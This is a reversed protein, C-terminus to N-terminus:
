SAPAEGERVTRGGDATNELYFWRAHRPLLRPFRDAWEVIMVGPEDLYEDWGLSVVEGESEMRYFDFHYVPLRGSTYEHVLTFTPSTVEEIGELGAVIGKTTQTKGAGLNGCLAIVDGENLAAALRRGWDFTEDPTRLTTM